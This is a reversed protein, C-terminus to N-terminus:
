VVKLALNAAFISIQAGFMSISKGVLLNWKYFINFECLNPVTVQFLARLPVGKWGSFTIQFEINEAVETIICHQKKEPILVILM